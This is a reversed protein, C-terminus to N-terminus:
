VQLQSQTANNVAETLKNEEKLEAVEAALASTEGACLDIEKNMWLEQEHLLSSLQSLQKEVEQLRSHSDSMLSITQNEEELQGVRAQLPCM